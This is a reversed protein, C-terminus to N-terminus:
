EGTLNFCEDKTTHQHSFHFRDSDVLQIFRPLWPLGRPNIGSAQSVMSTIQSCIREVQQCSRKLVSNSSRKKRAKLERKVLEMGRLIESYSTLFLEPAESVTEMVLNIRNTAGSCNLVEDAIEHSMSIVILETKTLSGGNPLNFSLNLSALQGAEEPLPQLLVLKRTLPLCYLTSLYVQGFHSALPFEAQNPDLFKNDSSMDVKSGGSGDVTLFKCSRHLPFRRIDVSGYKYKMFGVSRIDVQRSMVSYSRKPDDKEM